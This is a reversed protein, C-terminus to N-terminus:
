RWEFQTANKQRCNWVEAVKEGGLACEVAAEEVYKM